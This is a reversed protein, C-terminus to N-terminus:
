WATPTLETESLGAVEWAERGGRYWYVNTYGLAVLRLALNYGDFRESNWGAAVIPKNLDGGTLAEMKRGLREQAGDTLTGGIGANRLGIAGPISHDWFYNLTDIVVPKREAIFRPLDPTRITVAGPLSMPTYGATETRLGDDAPVGFDADEDAHDREGALRLGEQYHRIQAMYVPNLTEPWHSRVTDFPWSKDAAALANRAEAPQGSRAYAAALLRHTGSLSERRAGPNLALAQELWSIAQQDRGLLVAAVGMRRYRYYLNPEAPNLRIAKQILEIEEEAHGTATKCLGLYVYGSANNPFREIMRQSVAIGELCGEPEYRLWYATAKLVPESHPALATARALMAQTRQRLEFSGWGSLSSSGAWHEVLGTMALVSSPDLRLAQEYLRVMEAERAENDPQNRLARARLILDFADPRAPPERKERTTEIEVLSVGLVGRLRAVIATQGAALDAISEDFRDSWVHAGTDTAILQANVRLDPGLRRVSGELLYRVGLERGIQKADVARGKYTRASTSAIVFADPIHSLDSTLDDTIGDALYDDHSDGGLNQFPLVVLSLRPAAIRAAQDGGATDGGAMRWVVLTALFAAAIVCVAVTWVGAHRRSRDPDSQMTVDPVPEDTGGGTVPRPGGDSTVTGGAQTVWPVFRYGRGPITQIRSGEARDDDLVRRLAAIQVTLNNEEVTHTPWVADMIEQKPVIAGRRDVLVCLVDFARSGLPVPNLAGTADRRFLARVRQDLQFGDFQLAASDALVDM